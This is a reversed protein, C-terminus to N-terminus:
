LYLEFLSLSVSKVCIKQMILLKQDFSELYSEISTLPFTDFVMGGHLDKYRQRDPVEMQYDADM